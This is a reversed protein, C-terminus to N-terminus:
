LEHLKILNTRAAGFPISAVILARSGNTLGAVRLARDAQDILEDTSGPMPARVPVVARLLALRAVVAPDPSLAHIPVDPRMGALLRATLGSRTFCAIAAVPPDSAQRVMGAVAAAIAAAGSRDVADRLARPALATDTAGPREAALCIGVAARAAAVPYEGIATEASLMVADAGDLVANAVDSAEARTPRPASVMSELMQTAVIVPTCRAVARAIVRKQVLPVEAFPLEVGLDGRALMVADAEDLIADLDDLASETELKVIIPVARDGMRERLTRLDDARRVFSQAVFEVGLDLITELAAEDRETVAPLSLRASPVNVGAGSRILGGDVVAARVRGDTIAAVRLEVAGDALLLRDGVRVDNALGAHSVPLPQSGAVDGSPGLEVEDGDALELSGGPLDGLRVKPGPLDAVVAITRGGAAAAARAMRAVEAHEAPTGHSFNLRVVDMGVSVLEHLRERSAPGITCVLKTLRM